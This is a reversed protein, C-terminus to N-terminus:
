RGISKLEAEIAAQLVKKDDPSLDVMEDKDYIAFM